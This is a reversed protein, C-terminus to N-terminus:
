GRASPGYNGSYKPKKRKSPEAVRVPSTPPKPDLETERKKAARRNATTESERLDYRLREFYNQTAHMLFKATELREDATQNDYDAELRKLSLKLNLNNM